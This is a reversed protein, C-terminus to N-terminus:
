RTGTDAFSDEGLLMEIPLREVEPAKAMTTTEKVEGSVIQM